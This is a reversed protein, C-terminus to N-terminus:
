QIEKAKRWAIVKLALGRLARCTSADDFLDLMKEDMEPAFIADAAKVVADAALVVAVQSREVIIPAYMNACDECLAVMSGLGGYNVEADYFTKRGCKDCSYYDAGAM